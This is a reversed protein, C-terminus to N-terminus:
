KRFPFPWVRRKATDDIQGNETVASAIYSECIEKWEEEAVEDNVKKQAEKLMSREASGFGQLLNVGDMVDKMEMFEFVSESWRMMESNVSTWRDREELPKAEQRFHFGGLSLWIILEITYGKLGNWGTTDRGKWRESPSKDFSVPFDQIKAYTAATFDGIRGFANAGDSILFHFMYIALMGAYYDVRDPRKVLYGSAIGTVQKVIGDTDPDRNSSSPQRQEPIKMQGEVAPEAREPVSEDKGSEAEDVGSVPGERDPIEEVGEPVPEARTPGTQENAEVDNCLELCISRDRVETIRFLLASSGDSPLVFDGAVVSQRSGAFDSYEMTARFQRTSRDSRTATADDVPHIDLLVRRSGYRWWIPEFRHSFPRIRTLLPDRARLCAFLSEDSGDMVRRRFVISTDTVSLDEQALSYLESKEGVAVGVRRHLATGMGRLLATSMLWRLALNADREESESDPLGRLEHAPRVPVESRRYSHLVDALRMQQSRVNPDSDPRQDDPKNDTQRTLVNFKFEDYRTADLVAGLQKIQEIVKAWADIAAIQRAIGGGSSASEGAEFSYAVYYSDAADSMMCKLLFRLVEIHIVEGRGEGGNVRNFIASVDPDDIIGVQWADYLRIINEEITIAPVDFRRLLEYFREPSEGVSIIDYLIAAIGFLDTKATPNKLFGVQTNRDDVLSSPQEAGTGGSPNPQPYQVEITVLRKDPDKTLDTIQLFQRSYSKALTALDGKRINTELFKPDRTVLTARQGKEEVAIDCEAVDSFDIQEISRYHKTGIGIAQTVIVSGARGPDEEPNLFGLDGLRFQVKDAARKYYINAPKIDRHRFGAAHLTQLGRAVQGIVPIASRERESISAIRLKQYGGQSEQPPDTKEESAEAQEEDSSGNDPLESKSSGEVLDKLTCDFRDMLYAYKSLKIDLQELNKEGEFANFSKSFAIPLVIYDQPSNCISLFDQNFSSRNDNTLLEQLRKPLELGIELEASIRQMEFPNDKETGEAPASHAYLVKLAYKATGSAAPADFVIGFNGDGLKRPIELTKGNITVSETELRFGRSDQKDSESVYFTYRDGSSEADSRGATVTM